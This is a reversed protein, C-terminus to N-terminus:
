DQFKAAMERCWENHTALYAKARASVIEARRESAATRARTAGDAEAVAAACALLEQFLSSPPLQASVARKDNDIM